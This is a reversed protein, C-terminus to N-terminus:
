ASSLRRKGLAPLLKVSGYQSLDQVKICIVNRPSAEDGNADADKERYRLPLGRTTRRTTRRNDRHVLRLNRQSIPYM